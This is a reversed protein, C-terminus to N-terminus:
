DTHTTTQQLHSLYKSPLFTIEEMSQVPRQLMGTQVSYLLDTDGIEKGPFNEM